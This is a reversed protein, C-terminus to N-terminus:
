HIVPEFRFHGRVMRYSRLQHILLDASSLFCSSVVSMACVFRCLAVRSLWLPLSCCLVVLAIFLLVPCGFRYLAVCSLWLSLPCCLVILATFLLAPCGFRCLAVCSLWPPLSCSLVVLAM